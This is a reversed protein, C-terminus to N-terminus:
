KREFESKSLAILVVAAISIPVNLLLIIDGISFYTIASAFLVLLIPLPLILATITAALVLVWKKRKFAYISAVIALIAPAAVLIASLPVYAWMDYINWCLLPLLIFRAFLLLYVGVILDLVGATIPMWKKKVTV